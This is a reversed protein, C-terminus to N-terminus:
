NYMNWYHQSCSRKTCINNWSNLYYHYLVLSHTFYSLLLVVLPSGQHSLWYLIWRCHPLGPNLGQTPLIGQPLAHCGVRTNKGPTNGQVFSGPLSCNRPDCLDSQTVFCLLCLVSSGTACFDMIRYHMLYQIKVKIFWWKPLMTFKNNLHLSLWAKLWKEMDSLSFLFIIIRYFHGQSNSM